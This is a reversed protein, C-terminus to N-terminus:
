AAHDAGTLSPRGFAAPQDGGLIHRRVHKPQTLAWDRCRQRVPCGACMALAQAHRQHGVTTPESTTRPDFLDGHGACSAGRLDPLNDFIALLLPLLGAEARDPRRSVM